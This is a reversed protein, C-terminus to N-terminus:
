FYNIELNLIKMKTWRVLLTTETKFIIHVLKFVFLWESFMSAFSLTYLLSKVYDTTFCTNRWHNKTLNGKWSPVIGTRVPFMIPTDKSLFTFVQVFNELVTEQSLPGAFCSLPYITFRFTIPKFQYIATSFCFSLTNGPGPCSWIEPCIDVETNADSITIPSNRQKSRPLPSEGLPDSIYLVNMLRACPTRPLDSYPQM